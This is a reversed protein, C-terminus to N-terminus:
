LIGTPLATGKDAAGGLRLQLAPVLIAELAKPALLRHNVSGGVIDIARELGRLAAAGGLLGDDSGASAQAVLYLAQIEVANLQRDAPAVDFATILRGVVASALGPLEMEVATALAQSIGAWPVSGVAPRALQLVAICMDTGGRAGSVNHTAELSVRWTRATERPWPGPCEAVVALAALMSEVDEGCLQLAADLFGGTRMGM